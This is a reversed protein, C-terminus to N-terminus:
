NSLIEYNPNFLMKSAVVRDSIESLATILKKNRM